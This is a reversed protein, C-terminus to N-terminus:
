GFSRQYASPTFGTSKRFATAFATSCGFGIKLGIETVSMAPKELLLRKAQEVRLKTQYRLPPMGFSQKFARCFHFPTQRVLQALSALEIREALHEEIYAATVRQQWAGLGGRVLPRSAVAGRQLRLLQCVLVVGLAKFYLDDGPEPQDVLDILGLATHWLWEDEFFLRPSFSMHGIEGGSGTNLATPDFYFFTLRSLADLEHSEWYEAGAPVITLKRAFNRLTARSLGEVFSEGDRRAGDEYIVLLNMPARFRYEIRACSRARVTEATMGSCTIARRTVLDAPDVEVTPHSAAIVSACGALPDRDDGLDECADGEPSTLRTAFWPTLGEDHVLKTLTSSRMTVSGKSPVVAITPRSRQPFLM